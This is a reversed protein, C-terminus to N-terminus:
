TSREFIKIKRLNIKVRINQQERYNKRHVHRFFTIIFNFSKKAVGGNNIVTDVLGCFLPVAFPHCNTKTSNTNKM